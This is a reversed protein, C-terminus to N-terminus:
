EFTHIIPPRPPQPRIIPKMPAGNFGGAVDALAEDSLANETALYEEVTFPLGYEQAIRAHAEATTLRIKEALAPDTAAKALFAQINETSM